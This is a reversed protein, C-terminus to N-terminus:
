WEPSKSSISQDKPPKTVLVRSRNDRHADRQAAVRQHAPNTLHSLAAACTTCPTADTHEGM